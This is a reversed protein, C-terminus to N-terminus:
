CQTTGVINCNSGLRDLFECCSSNFFTRTYDVFHGKFHAEFNVAVQLSDPM